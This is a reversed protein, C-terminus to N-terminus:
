QAPAPCADSLGNLGEHDLSFEASTKGASRTIKVVFISDFDKREWAPV